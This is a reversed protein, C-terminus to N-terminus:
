RQTTEPAITRRARAILLGSAVLALYALGSMCSSVLSGPHQAVLVTGTILTLSILGNSAAFRGKHPKLALYSTYIISAIAVIIHSILVM